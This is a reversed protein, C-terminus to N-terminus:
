LSEMSQEFEACMRMGYTSLVPLSIEVDGLTVEESSTADLSWVNRSLGDRYCWILCIASSTSDRICMESGM